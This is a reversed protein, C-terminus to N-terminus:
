YSKLIIEKAISRWFSATQNVRWCGAKILKDHCTFEPKRRFLFEILTLYVHSIVSVM